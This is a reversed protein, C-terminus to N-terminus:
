PIYVELAPSAAFTDAAAGNAMGTPVYLRDGVVAAGMGFRATKLPAVTSWIGSDPDLVMTDPSISGVSTAIGGTVIIHGRLVAVAASSVSRPAPPRTSWTGAAVDFVLVQETRADGTSGGIVWFQNGVVAGMAYGVPVPLPPLTRWSDTPADYALLDSQRVGTNLNNNSRGRVIGGALLVTNGHVGVAATGRGPQM